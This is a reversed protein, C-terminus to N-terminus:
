KMLSTWHHKVVDWGLFTAIASVTAVIARSRTLTKEADRLREEHDDLVATVSDRMERHTETIIDFRANMDARVGEIASIILQENSM